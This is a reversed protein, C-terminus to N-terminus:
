FDRLSKEKYQHKFIYSNAFNIVSDIEPCGDKPSDNFRPFQNNSLSVKQAWKNM